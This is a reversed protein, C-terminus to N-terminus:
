KSINNCLTKGSLLVVSNTEGLHVCAKKHSSDLVEKQKADAQEQEQRGQGISVSWSAAPSNGDAPVHFAIPRIDLWM